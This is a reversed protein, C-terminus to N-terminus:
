DAKMDLLPKGEISELSLRVSRGIAEGLDDAGVGLEDRAISPDIFLRSAQIEALHALDLGSEIGRRRYDCGRLRAYLSFVFTPITVISKNPQGMHRYMIGLMERWDLNFAGVPYCSGGRGKELAGAVAQAVQRVTVMASGGAPYYCAGRMGLLTAVLFAWVPRRGEQAGFIYPLELVMVALEPCNHSMAVEEQALRSRIYPHKAALFLEPRQKAYYSFYSGLIVARRVGCRRCASLLRDVPEVNYKLYQQYVPPSFEVREDVGAAFVLADFGALRADLEEGSFDLCNGFEVQLGEPLIAGAPLPPLALASARHGRSLLEAAAASGLLGTGGVIYVRM